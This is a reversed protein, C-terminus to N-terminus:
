EEWKFSWKFTLTGTSKLEVMSTPNYLELTKIKASANPAVATILLSESLPDTSDLSGKM